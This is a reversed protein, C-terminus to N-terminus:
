DFLREPNNKTQVADACLDFTLVPDGDVNGAGDPFEFSVKLVRKESIKLEDNAALVNDRTLQSATGKYLVDNGNYITVQLVDALGGGVNDFYIKYYVSYTSNNELFFEKEVTMGPGFRCEEDEIIPKGDNLNISVSGTRFINSDVSVISYVLTFTLICLIILLIVLLIIGIKLKEQTDLYGFRSYRPRSFRLSPLHFRGIM